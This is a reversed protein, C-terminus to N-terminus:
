SVTLCRRHHKKSFYNVVMTSIQCPGSGSMFRDIFYRRINDRTVIIVIKYSPKLHVRIFELALLDEVTLALETRFYGKFHM